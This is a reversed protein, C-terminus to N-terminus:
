NNDKASIRGAFIIFVSDATIYNLNYVDEHRIKIITDIEKIIREKSDILEYYAIVLEKYERDKAAISQRLSETEVELGRKDSLLGSGIIFLVVIWLLLVFIIIIYNYQKMM